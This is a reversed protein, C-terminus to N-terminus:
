KENRWINDLKKWDRVWIGAFCQHKCAFDNFKKFEALWHSFDRSGDASVVFFLSNLEKVNNLFSMEKGYDNSVSIINISLGDGIKLMDAVKGGTLLRKEGATVVEQDAVLILQELDLMKRCEAFYKMSRGFMIDNSKGSGYNQKRWVQVLGSPRDLNSDNWRNMSVSVVLTPMEASDPLNRWFEKLKLIVDRYPNGGGYIFRSGRERNLFASENLLYVVHLGNNNLSMVFDFFRKGRDKGIDADDVNDFPVAVSSFGLMKVNEAFIEVNCMAEPLEEAALILVADQKNGIIQTMKAANDKNKVTLEASPHFSQMLPASCGCVLLILASFLYIKRFM